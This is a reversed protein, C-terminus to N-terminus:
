FVGEIDASNQKASKGKGKGKSNPKEDTDPDTEPEKTEPEATTEPEKTTEPESEPEKTEPEATTEPHSIHWNSAGTYPVYGDTLFHVNSVNGSKLEEIAGKIYAAVKNTKGVDLFQDWERLLSYIDRGALVRITGM